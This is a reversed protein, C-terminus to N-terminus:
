GGQLGLRNGEYVNRTVQDMWGRHNLFWEVTEKLGPEFEVLPQWDLLQRAKVSSIAYRQDHGPRDKVFRIQEAYSRGTALPSLQDLYVCLAKVIDLNSRECDGGFLYEEGPEGRALAMELGRVHDDVHIWDRVNSGDGYVPLTMGEVARRVMLPILKEPYQYPGYNNSCNTVLTPLHYTHFFARVFHDAAAKSAAYPSRPAYPSLRTFQGQSGLSGFVEDTSAQLLRFADQKASPLRLWYDLCAELLHCVGVVNTQVFVSPHDISRDVHSEAALNVVWDPSYTQLLHRVLAKDGIDGRQFHLLESDEVEALNELRGAYTLKDLVIVQCAGERILRRVMCSGIFGAGGTVLVARM